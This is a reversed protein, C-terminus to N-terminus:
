SLKEYQEQTIWENFQNDWGAYKVLYQRKGRVTKSKVVSEIFKLNPVKTLQLENNYFSGEIPENNMDVLKYTTPLTPLVEHIKFIEKSWKYDFGKEFTGKTRAIRVLNGIDFKTKTNDTTVMQNYYKSYLNNFVVEKNEPKSAKEPTMKISSHKHKNNYINMLEPIYEVWDVTTQTIFHRYIWDKLTRIFREVVSAKHEGFTSYMQINQSKLTQEFIKNYFETGQDVWVFKPKRKSYKIIDKFAKNVEQASKTKLPTVWAFKSFVDIVCLAFIYGDNFDKYYSFDAIDIAWIEDIDRSIVPRRSFKSNFPKNLEKAYQSKDTM